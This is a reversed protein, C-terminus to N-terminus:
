ENVRLYGGDVYLEGPLSANSPLGKFVVSDGVSILLGTRYDTFTTALSADRRVHFYGLRELEGDLIRFNETYIYYNIGNILFGSDYSVPVAIRPIGFRGGIPFRVGIREIGYIVSKCCNFGIRGVVSVQKVDVPFETSSSVVCCGSLVNTVVCFTDGNLLLIDGVAYNGDIIAFKGNFYRYYTYMRVVDTGNYVLEFRGKDFGEDYLEIEDSYTEYSSEKWGVIVLSSIDSLTGNVPIDVLYAGDSEERHFASMPSGGVNLSLDSTEVIISFGDSECSISGVSATVKGYGDDYEDLDTVTVYNPFGEDSYSHREAVEFDVPQCSGESYSKYDGEEDVESVDITDELDYYMVDQEEDPEVNLITLSSAYSVDDGEAENDNAEVKMDSVVLNEVVLNSFHWDGSIDYSGAANLFFSSPHGDLYEANLNGIKEKTKMSFGESFVPKGVIYGGVDTNSGESSTDSDVSDSSESSKEKNRSVIDELKTMRSGNRVYVCSSDLIIGSIGNGVIVSRRGNVDSIRVLENM